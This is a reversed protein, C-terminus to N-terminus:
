SQKNFHSVKKKLYKIEKQVKAIRKENIATKKKKKLLGLEKKKWKLLVTEWPTTKENQINEARYALEDAKENRSEPYGFFSIENLWSGVIDQFTMSKTGKFFSIMEGKKEEWIEASKYYDVTYSPDTKLRVSKLQNLKTFSLSSTSNKNKKIKGCVHIYDSIRLLPKGIDNENFVDVAWLFVIYDLRNNNTEEEPLSIEEWFPKLKHGRSYSMFLLDIEEEYKMLANMFDLVSLGKEFVPQHQLYYSLPMTVPVWKGKKMEFFGNKGILIEYMRKKQLSLM